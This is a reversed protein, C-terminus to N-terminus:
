VADGAQAEHRDLYERIARGTVQSRSRDEKAAFADLRDRLDPTLTVTTTIKSASPEM